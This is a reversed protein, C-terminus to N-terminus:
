SKPASGFNRKRKSFDVIAKAVENRDFDPWLTDTVYIESYAAQWLLFNSLRFEGASRVILDPDPCHATYLASSIDDETVSKKGEAILRNVANTIEARSGYNLAINLLLRNNETLKELETCRKAFKEGLGDKDGLFRYKANNKKDDRVAESINSELLDMIANIEREPRKWNETSFAYVTLTEIGFDDCIHVVNKFAAAGKVHGAERPLSRSTAWRGNGDMIFAIHRLSSDKVLKRIDEDSYHLKKKGFM